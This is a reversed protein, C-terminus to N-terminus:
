KSSDPSVWRPASGVPSRRIQMSPGLSPEGRLKKSASTLRSSSSQLLHPSPSTGTQPDRVMPGGRVREGDRPSRGHGGRHAAAAMEAAGAGAGTTEERRELRKGDRRPVM